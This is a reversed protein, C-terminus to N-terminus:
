GEGRKAQEQLEYLLNIAELPTISSLPLERLRQLLESGRSAEGEKGPTKEQVKEPPKIESFDTPELNRTTLLIDADNLEGAIEKAREIVEQPVGALGAVDIGYSQDAGGPVIKRLFIIGQENKQVAICYNQVSPLKGELETLEHYHTAFLTKARIVHSIYEVVAWAISLGDFTSTGRGIEDLILLSKETANRLINAVENMEVMFTSQGSALDDSAGVRTFIRDCVPIEAERAPVFSGIAAMLTLLAVQRMYTSKGAMNPGTIIAIRHSDQDLSTDNHVFMGEEMLKEVVPHRGERINLIGKENISPRVYHNQTAVRSLSILFDLLAIERASKQIRAINEGIQDRIECFIAYELANQKEEAGLIMDQLKGLEETTYREGNALTQKRLYHEPVQAKFSNSVELCYGFIRNYKVKLSKIGTSERERMELEMLWEKGRARAERYEDLKEQYGERILGGDRASVPPDETLADAVLHYLDEMPDLEETISQIMPAQFSHLQQLIDPLIRLSEAFALLDRPNASKTTIRGLIRELDYVASLYESIEERDIYHDCFEDVADMRAEIRAKSILPQEIARRLFRGGMATRTRDLVWLLSGRKKKERMTETLELNRQTALDLMMYQRSTYFQITSIHSVSQKQTEYVYFLASSAALMELERGAFGLGELTGHFHETLRREASEQRYVNDELETVLVQYRDKLEMVDLESIMLRHNCLIESPSFRGFEDLVEKETQVSSVYFEGTTIDLAAIGYGRDEYYLSMLFNNRDQSLVTESTVTGPTVVRIVERKVLGKALKPDEMQEAIAVKYGQSVLRAVYSDAAHYPIGCMPAREGTGCDKGTLVLDLAESATRADEFFMEYFDGIRFFLLTDPYEKKTELYQVMMPSMKKETMVKREM